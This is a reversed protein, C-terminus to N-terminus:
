GKRSFVNCISHIMSALATFIAAVSAFISATEGLTGQYGFLLEESITSKSM